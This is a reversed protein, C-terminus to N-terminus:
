DNLVRLEFGALQPHKRVSEMVPKLIWARAEGEYIVTEALFWHTVAGTKHSKLAIGIDCADDYLQDWTQGPRMGLDSAETLLVKHASSTRSISQTSYPIPNLLAM